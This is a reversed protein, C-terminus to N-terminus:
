EQKVVNSLVTKYVARARNLRGLTDQTTQDVYGAAAIRSSAYNAQQWLKEVEKLSERITEECHERCVTLTLICATSNEQETLIDTTWCDLVLKQLLPKGVKPALEMLRVVSQMGMVPDIGGWIGLTAISEHGDLYSPESKIANKFESLADDLTALINPRHEALESQKLQAFGLMGFGYDSKASGAYWYADAKLRGDPLQEALLLAEGLRQNAPVLREIYTNIDRVDSGWKKLKSSMEAIEAWSLVAQAAVANQGLGTAKTATEIATAFDEAEIQVRALEVLALSSVPELELAAKLDGIAKADNNLHRHMEARVLLGETFKPEMALLENLEAVASEYDGTAAVKKAAELRSILEASVAPEERETKTVSEITPKLETATIPESDRTLEAVTLPQTVATPETVSFPVTPTNLEIPSDQANIAVPKEVAPSVIRESDGSCGTMAIALPLMGLTILVKSDIRIAKSIGQKNSM